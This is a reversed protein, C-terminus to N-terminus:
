LRIIKTNSVLHNCTLRAGHHNELLDKPAVNSKQMPLRRSLTTRTVGIYSNDLHAFDGLNCKYEYVPNITQLDDVPPSQDNKLILSSNTESKYYLTVKLKHGPLVCKLNNQVIKKM